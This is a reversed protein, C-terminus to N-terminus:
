GAAPAIARMKRHLRSQERTIRSKFKQYSQAATLPRGKDYFFLKNMRAAERMHPNKVSAVKANSGRRKMRSFERALSLGLMHAIYHDTTSVQKGGNYSRIIATEEKTQLAKIQAAIDPDFRLALIEARLHKDKTGSAYHKLGLQEGFREILTLWTKDIYQFVGRASSNASIVNKGIDSEIKAKIIMTEFDTGHRLSAKYIASIIAPDYGEAELASSLKEDRTMRVRDKKGLTINLSSASSIKVTAGMLMLAM